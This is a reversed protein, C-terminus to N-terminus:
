DEVRTGAPREAREVPPEAVVAKPKEAVLSPAPTEAKTAATSREVIARLETLQQLAQATYSARFTKRWKKCVEHVASLPEAAGLGAASCDLQKVGRQELERAGRTIAELEAAIFLVFLRRVTFNFHAFSVLGFPSFYEEGAAAKAHRGHEVVGERLLESLNNCRSAISLGEELKERWRVPSQVKGVLPALVQAVEEMSVERGAVGSPACQAFYQVMLFDIKDLDTPNKTPRKLHRDLVDRLNEDNAVNTTQIIQRWHQPGIREDM